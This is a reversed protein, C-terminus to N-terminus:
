AWCWFLGGDCRVHTGMNEPNLQRACVSANGFDCPAACVDDLFLKM